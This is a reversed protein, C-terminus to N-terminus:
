EDECWVKCSEGSDPKTFVATSCLGYPSGETFTVEDGRDFGPCKKMAEFHRNNIEFSVGRSVSEIRYTRSESSDFLSKLVGKTRKKEPQVAKEALTRDGAFGNLWRNLADIEEPTLKNLGAATFERHTMLDNIDLPKDCFAPVPLSLLILFILSETINIATLPIKM